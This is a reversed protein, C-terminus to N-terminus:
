IQDSVEKQMAQIFENKDPEKMEQHLYMTTPDSTSKYAMNQEMDLASDDQPFMAQLCLIEGEVRTSLNKIEAAQCITM